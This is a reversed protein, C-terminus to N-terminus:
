ENFEVEYMLQQTKIKVMRNKKHSLKQLHAILRVHVDPDNEKDTTTDKVIITRCVKNFDNM